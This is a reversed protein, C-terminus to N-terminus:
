ITPAVEPEPIANCSRTPDQLLGSNFFAIYTNSTKIGAALVKNKILSNLMKQTQEVGMNTDSLAKILEYALKEKREEASPVNKEKEVSGM